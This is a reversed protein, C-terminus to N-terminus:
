IYELLKQHLQVCARSGQTCYNLLKRKIMKSKDNEYIGMAMLAFAASASEPNRIDSNEYVRSGILAPFVNQILTSGHFDPHYFDTGIITELDVRRQMLSLLKMSLDPNLRMLNRLVTSEMGAYVIISGETELDHTLFRALERRCDRRPDAIYERHDVVKGPEICKLVSYVTPITEFPAADYYFPIAPVAVKIDLYFAPFVIAELKERLERGIYPKGTIESERVIEQQETLGFGGPIRLIDSIGMKSLEYFKKKSLRPLSFIHHKADKGVCNGFLMCDRCEYRLGAIPKEEKRTIEELSEMFPEMITALKSAEDTIDREFFQMEHPMGLRFHPSTLILSCGNVRLGAHEAVLKTYALVEVHEDKESTSSHVGKIQWSDSNRVLIDARAICGKVMFTAELIASVSTDNLLYQTQIAAREPDPENVRKATPFLDRARRIITSEQEASFREVLSPEKGVNNNRMEWGLRPCILAHRFIKGTISQSDQRNEAKQLMPVVFLL